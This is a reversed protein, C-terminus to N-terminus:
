KIYLEFEVRRNTARGAATDNSAVPKTEGYGAHNMRERAIGKGAFYEFCTRARDESLKQNKADQGVNDTHGSIRVKYDPYKNLIDVIQDLIAYSSSLLEAKGTEFQVNSAALALIDKVEQGLEPCGRNSAPGKNEPCDDNDDIIGDGDTDRMPCGRREPPGALEPCDDFKDAIGDQDKDPCGSTYKKGVEDPCLDYKDALGDGDRDPCGDTAATGADDPCDDKEDAIGDGDLDSEPCGKKAPLGPEDPCMDAADAVGDGDRDPCGAATPVGAEDPCSDNVDTIGDGDRDPCGEATLSGPTDPCKDADDSVGDGDRDEPLDPRNKKVIRFLYGLGFVLNDRNELTAKRFEAQFNIYSHGGLFINSGLGVPIQVNSQEFDEIVFGAGLMFYPQFAKLKKLFPFQITADLGVLTKRNLSGAIDAVGIRLPISLRSWENIERSYSFELGNTMELTDLDNTVGHDLFLVKAAGFHPTVIEEQACLPQAFWFFAFFLLTFVPKKMFSLKHIVPNNQDPLNEFCDPFFSFYKSVLLPSTFCSNFRFCQFHHGIDGEGSVCPM